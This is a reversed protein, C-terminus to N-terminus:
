HRARWERALLGFVADDTVVDGKWYAERRVGESRFGLRELVGISAVNAPDTSAEIRHAGRTEVLYEIVRGVAETAYGNGRAWAHLTYGIEATKGDESM